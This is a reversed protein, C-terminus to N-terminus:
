VKQLKNLSQDTHQGPNGFKKRRGNSSHENGRAVIMTGPIWIDTVLLNLHKSRSTSNRPKPDLVYPITSAHAGIVVRALPLTAAISIGLEHQLSLIPVM